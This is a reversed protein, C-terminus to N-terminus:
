AAMRDRSRNTDTTKPAQSKRDFVMLGTAVLFLGFLIIPSASLASELFVIIESMQM